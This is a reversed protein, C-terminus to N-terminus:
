EFFTVGAREYFRRAPRAFRPKMAGPHRGAQERPFLQLVALSAFM